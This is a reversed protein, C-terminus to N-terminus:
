DTLRDIEKILADETIGQSRRYRHYYDASLREFEETYGETPDLPNKYIQIIEFPIEPDEAWYIENGIKQLRIEDSVPYTTPKGMYDSEKRHLLVINLDPYATMEGYNKGRFKMNEGGINIDARRQNAEINKLEPHEEYLAARPGTLDEEILVTPGTASTNSRRDQDWTAGSGGGSSSRETKSVSAQAVYADAYVEAPTMLNMNDAYSESQGEAVEFKEPSYEGHPDSYKENWMDIAAARAGTSQPLDHYQIANQRLIAEAESKTMNGSDVERRLNQITANTLKIYETVPTRSIDITELQFYRGSGRGPLGYYPGSVPQRESGPISAYTIGTSPDTEYSVEVGSEAAQAEISQKMTMLSGPAYYDYLTLGIGMPDDWMEGTKEGLRDFSQTRMLLDQDSAVYQKGEVKPKLDGSMAQLYRDEANNIGKRLAAHKSGLSYFNYINRELDPYLEPNTKLLAQSDEIVRNFESLDEASWDETNKLPAALKSMQTNRLKRAEKMRSALNQSNAQQAAAMQAGVSALRDAMSVEPMAAQPVFQYGKAM